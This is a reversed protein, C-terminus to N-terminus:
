GPLIKVPQRTVIRLLINIVALVPLAIEPPVIEGYTGNLIAVAVTLINIWFTKSELISKADPM